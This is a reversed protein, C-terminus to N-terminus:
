SIVKEVPVRRITQNRFIVVKRKARYQWRHLLCRSPGSPCADASAFRFTSSLSSTNPQERTIKATISEALTLREPFVNKKKVHSKSQSCTRYELCRTLKRSINKFNFHGFEYLPVVQSMIKDGFVFSPKQFVYEGVM